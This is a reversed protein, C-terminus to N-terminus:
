ARCFVTLDRVNIMEIANSDWVPQQRDRELVTVSDFHRSLIQATCLGAMGSGIVVAQQKAAHTTISRQLSM